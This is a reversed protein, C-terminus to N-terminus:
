NHAEFYEMYGALLEDDPNEEILQSLATEYVDTVVYDNWDVGNDPIEGINVMAEYFAVTATKDPDLTLRMAPTYDETGYIQARLFDRDQGETYTELIDLTEEEHTQYYEFGRIVAREFAVLSDFENAYTDANVTQRCCPYPDVFDKVLAVVEVGFDDAYYGKVSNTITLDFEGDVVGQIQTAEDAAYVFIVDAGSDEDGITLGNEILWNKLVMQGTEAMFCSIRLGRFDEPSNLTIDSGAAAMIESGEAATGGMVRISDTGQSIFTAAATSSLLYVDLDGTAVATFADNMSAVRQLEVDVGEEEFYGLAEAVIVGVPKIATGMVGVDLHGDAAGAPEEAVTADDAAGATEATDAAADAAAPQTEASTDSSSGCAALAAACGFVMVGALIVSLLKKRM